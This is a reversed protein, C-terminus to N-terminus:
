LNFTTQLWRLFPDNVITQVFDSPDPHFENQLVFRNPVAEVTLRRERLVIRHSFLLILRPIPVLPLRFAMGGTVNRADQTLLAASSLSASATRERARVIQSSSRVLSENSFEKRLDQSSVM